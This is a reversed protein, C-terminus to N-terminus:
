KVVVEWDLSCFLKTAEAQSLNNVDLVDVPNSFAYGTGLNTLMAKTPYGPIISIIYESGNHPSIFRMAAKVGRPTKSREALGKLPVLSPSIYFEDIRNTGIIEVVEEISIKSPM